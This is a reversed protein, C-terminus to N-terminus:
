YACFVNSLGEFTDPEVLEIREARNVGPISMFFQDEGTDSVILFVRRGSIRGIWEDHNENCDFLEDFKHLLEDAVWFYDYVSGM